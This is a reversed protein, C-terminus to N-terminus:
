EYILISLQDKDFIENAIELLQNNELRDIKKMTEQPTELKKEIILKKGNSITLNEKNELAITSQGILQKKANRFQLEGMKKMRLTNLEKYILDLSQNLKSKDTGFYITIIGSDSYATYSSDINYAIGNKERLIMNLRSNMSYGGLLNNLLVLGLRRDDAVPYARSGLICHVQNTRKKQRIEIKKYPIIEMDFLEGQNTPVESFYRRFIQNLKTSKINGNTSVVIKATKFNNQIFNQIDKLGIRKISKPTGLINKGLPHNPFILEEFDEFITEQPNDKYSNIEDIIVEKEKKMETESFTSHFVIDSLLELAREFYEKTFSTYICIEEKSTYANLEGGIIELRNIIHHSKRRTTGKFLGHEILHAMGHEHEMENRTGAHIMVCCHAVESNDPLHILRIGNELEFTEFNM